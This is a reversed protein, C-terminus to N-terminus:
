DESNKDTLDKKDGFSIEFRKQFSYLMDGFATLAVPYDSTITYTFRDQMYIDKKMVVKGDERSVKLKPGLISGFRLVAGGKKEQIAIVCDNFLAVWVPSTIPEEHWPDYTETLYGRFLIKPELDVAGLSFAFRRCASRAGLYYLMKEAKLKNWAKNSASKYIVPALLFGSLILWPFQYGIATVIFFFLCLGLFVLGSGQSEALIELKEEPPVLQFSTEPHAYIM